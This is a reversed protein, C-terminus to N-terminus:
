NGVGGKGKKQQELAGKLIRKGSEKELTGPSNGVLHDLAKMIEKDHEHSNRAITDLVPPIDKLSTAMPKLFDNIQQRTEKLASFLEAKDSKADEYHQKMETAYDEALKAKEEIKQAVVDKEKLLREIIQDLAMSKGENRMGSFIVTRESELSKLDYLLSIFDYRYHKCLTELSEHPPPLEGAEYRNIQKVGVGLIKGLESPSEGKLMRQEKLKKAFEETKM